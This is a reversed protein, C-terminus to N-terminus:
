KMKIGELESIKMHKSIWALSYNVLNKNLIEWSVHKDSSIEFDTLIKKKSYIMIWKDKLIM